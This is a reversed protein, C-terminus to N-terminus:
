KQDGRAHASPSSFNASLERMLLRVVDVRVTPLTDLVGVGQVATMPWNLTIFIATAITANINKPASANTVGDPTNVPILTVELDRAPATVALAAPAM